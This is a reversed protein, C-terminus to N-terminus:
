TRIIELKEKIPTRKRKQPIKEPYGIQMVAAIKETDADLGIHKAFHPDHMFPTITWLMGVGYSWATLQANQIFACVASYDEEYRVKNQDKKFYILAHHPIDLLFKSMSQIMRKTKEDNTTRIMGIRQYSTMIAEVFAQKGGEQYMKIQWPEKLYHNPAWSAITFIEQLLVDSVEERKFTHISRREKIATLIDIVSVGHRERKIYLM